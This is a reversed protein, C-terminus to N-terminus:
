MGPPTLRAIIFPVVMLTLLLLGFWLALVKLHAMLSRYEHPRLDQHQEQVLRGRERAVEDHHLSRMRRM